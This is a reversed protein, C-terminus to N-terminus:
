VQRLILHRHLKRAVCIYACLMIFFCYNAYLIQNQKQKNKCREVPRAGAACARSPKDVQARTGRFIESWAARRWAYAKWANKIIYNLGAAICLLFHQHTVIYIQMYSRTITKTKARLSFSINHIRFKKKSFEWKEYLLKKKTELPWLGDNYRGDDDTTSTYPRSQTM